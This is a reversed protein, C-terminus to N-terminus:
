SNDKVSHDDNWWKKLAEVREENRAREEFKRARDLQRLLKKRLASGRPADAAKQKQNVIWERLGAFDTPAKLEPIASEMAQIEARTVYWSMAVTTSTSPEDTSEIKKQLEAWTQDGDTPALDVTVEASNEFDVTTFFAPDKTLRTFNEGIAAVAQDNRFMASTTRAALVADIPTFLFQFGRLSKKMLGDSEPEPFGLRDNRSVSDRIQILVVGSTHEVLWSRRLNLWAVAVNVGYNDYYGADVVRLPPDTPLNVAPSVWPFTANMRAATSVRFESAAPFIKFFEVASLSYPEPKKGDNEANLEGGLNLALAHPRSTPPAAADIQVLDLNSILLRRGDDVTMPSFIMSPLEGKEELPRLDSFSIERLDKWDKELVKGRDDFDNSWRPVLMRWTEELAISRAVVRLSNTPMRSYWRDPATPWDTRKRDVVAPHIDHLWKVYYAAGVMGGSAGAIVRVHNHFLHEHDIMRDLRDLVVVSWYASRTAGGSVCVVALKPKRQPFASNKMAFSAWKPLLQIEDALAGTKPGAGYISEVVTATTLKAPARTPPPYYPLNEFQLKFDDRNALGIWALAVAVAVLRFRPRMLELSVSAMALIGLLACIAFAPAVGEYKFFGLDHEGYFVTGLAVYGAAVLVFFTIVSTLKADSIATPSALTTPPDLFDILPGAIRRVPRFVIRDIGSVAPNLGSTAKVALKVLVVGAVMGASWVALGMLYARAHASVDAHRNLEVYADSRGLWKFLRELDDSAVPAYRPVDSFVLPLLAPLLLLLLFPFRTIRLFRSLEVSNGRTPELWGGFPLKFKSPCALFSQIRRMVIVHEDAPILYYANIGLLALLLTCGMSAFFRTVPEENWFLYPVGLAGGVQAYVILYLLVLIAAQGLHDLLYRVLDSVFGRYRVVLAIGIAAVLVFQCWFWM